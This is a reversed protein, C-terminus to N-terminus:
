ITYRLSGGTIDATIKERFFPIDNATFSLPLNDTLFDAYMMTFVGCDFTYQQPIERCDNLIFKSLDCNILQDNSLDAIWQLLSHMTKMDKNAQSMRTMMGYSSDFYHIAKDQIFIIFLTWHSEKICPFFIKDLSFIDLDQSWSKIDTQYSYNKRCLITIFSSDFYHSPLRSNDAECLDKDRTRLLTM